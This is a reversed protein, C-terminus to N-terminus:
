FGVPNIELHIAGSVGYEQGLYEFPIEAYTIPLSVGDVMLTSADALQSANQGLNGQFTTGLADEAVLRPWLVLGAQDVWFHGALSSAGRLFYIAVRRNAQSFVAPEDAVVTSTRIKYSVQLVKGDGFCVNEVPNLVPRRWSVREPFEEIEESYSIVNGAGPAGQRTAMLSHRVRVAWASTNWYWAMAKSLPVQAPYDTGRGTAPRTKQGVVPFWGSGTLHLFGM